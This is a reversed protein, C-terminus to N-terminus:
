LLKRLTRLNVADWDEGDENDKPTELYMPIRQFRPDNLLLRFPGLGLQGLGIHAHRDIRSGLPRQSDNLHFAKIRRLGLLRDFAAMTAYYDDAPSLAYGAAFVHCTDLCFGLRDPERLRDLIAAFQEFRWGLATGQGATTELLCRVALGRTQAHIEDLARAVRRLGTRESGTTHAGPHAVVFPIGLAEARGLEAIFEDVSDRWFRREPSALNILYGDHALPHSIGCAGLAGRFREVREATIGALARRDKGSFSRPSATFIQLCDCGSAKARQVAREYGGVISKHAGLPPM